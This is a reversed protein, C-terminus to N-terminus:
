TLHSPNAFLIAPQGLRLGAALFQAITKTLSKEDNYFQVAHYHREPITMTREEKAEFSRAPRGAPRHRRTGTRLLDHVKAQTPDNEECLFLVLRSTIRPM